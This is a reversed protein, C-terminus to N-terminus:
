AAETRWAVLPQLRARIPEEPYARNVGGARQVDLRVTIGPGAVARVDHITAQVQLWYARPALLRAPLEAVSRWRGPAPAAAADQHEDHFTRVLLEHNEDLLDIFVRLGHIRERVEYDLVIRVPQDAFVATTPQGAQEVALALWRFVPDDAPARAIQEAVGAADGGGLYAATVAEVPGDQRLAGAELLLARTCLSRVAGLQHSVFLVTRGARGLEGMRGLCRKQFEADGVALAEDILLIETDLHAAVAFALRMYMGSSYHKVPTDIFREVEAFAVIEAFRRTIEARRMGLVAGGLYVNERGSLEPHFGSGVELLSGVRGRIRAEGTTPQTIRALLKLLTSKGSGNRGIVGVVEGPAISFSVERLAWFDEGATPRRWAGRALAALSDRLSGYRAPAALRYRKGLGNVTIAADNM